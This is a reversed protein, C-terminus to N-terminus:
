NKWSKKTFQYTHTMPILFGGENQERISETIGIKESLDIVEGNVSIAYIRYTGSEYIGYSGTKIEATVGTRCNQIYCRVTGAEERLTEMDIDIVEGEQLYISNSYYLLHDTQVSVMGDFKMKDEAYNTICFYYEGDEQVSIEEMVIPVNRASELTNYIGDHIYGVEYNSNGQTINCSLFVTDEKNLELGSDLIIMQGNDLSVTKITATDGESEMQEIIIESVNKLEEISSGSLLDCELGRQPLFFLGIVIVICAVPVVCLRWRNGKKGSSGSKLAAQMIKNEIDPSFQIKDFAECYTKRDM